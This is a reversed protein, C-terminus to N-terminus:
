SLPTVLRRQRIAGELEREFFFTDKFYTKLSHSPTILVTNSKKPPPSNKQHGHM